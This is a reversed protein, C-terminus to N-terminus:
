LKLLFIEHIQIFVWQFHSYLYHGGHVDGATEGGDQGEEFKQRSVFLNYLYICVNQM